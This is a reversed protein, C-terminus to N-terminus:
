ADSKGDLVDKLKEIPISDANLIKAFQKATTAKDKMGCDFCINEGNPGYPRLEDKKGCLECIRDEYDAGIISVRMAIREPRM